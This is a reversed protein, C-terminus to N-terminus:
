EETVVLPLTTDYLRVHEPIGGRELREINRHAWERWKGWTTPADDTLYWRYDSIYPIKEKQDEYIHASGAHVILDGPKWIMCRAVIELLGSFMIVDYPLGRCLDWSRMSVIAHLYGNRQRFQIALTCPLDSSMGDDRSGVFLVAQRSRPDSRLTTLLRNMQHKIRPGYAMPYTFLSHNANPAVRKIAELDFVGGVMQLLEMFGLSYNIGTRTFLTGSSCKLQGGLMEITKGYRSDVIKGLTLVERALTLQKERPGEFYTTDM